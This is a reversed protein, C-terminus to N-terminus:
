WIPSCNKINRVSPDLKAALDVLRPREANCDAHEQVVVRREDDRMELVASREL